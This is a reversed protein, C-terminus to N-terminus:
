FVQSETDGGNGIYGSISTAVEDISAENLTM